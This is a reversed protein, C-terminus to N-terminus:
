KEQLNCKIILTLITALCYKKLINIGSMMVLNEDVNEIVAKSVVAMYLRLLVANGRTLEISADGLEFIFDKTGKMWKM